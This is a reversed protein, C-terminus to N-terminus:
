EHSAQESLHTSPQPGVPPLFSYVVRGLQRGHLLHPCGTHAEMHRGATYISLCTAMMFFTLHSVLLV